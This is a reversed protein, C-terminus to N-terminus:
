AHKVGKENEIEAEVVEKLKNRGRSLRKKVNSETIELSSAIEKVSFGVIEFLVLVEKQPEPLQNLCWHLFQVKVTTETSGDGSIKPADPMLEPKKKRSANALLRRSIGILFSLFVQHDRISEFKHYAKLICDNMLDEYPYGGYASARCYKEFREHVPEYLRLFDSQKSNVM